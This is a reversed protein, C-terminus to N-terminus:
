ASVEKNTCLCHIHYPCPKCRGERNHENDYYIDPRICTGGQEVQCKNPGGTAWEVYAKIDTKMLEVRDHYERHKLVSEEEQKKREEPTLTKNRGKKKKLLKLKYLVEYDVSKTVKSNLKQRVQDVTLGTKLLKAAPRSVYYRELVEQSGFKNLKNQLTSGNLYKEEGTIICSVHFGKM